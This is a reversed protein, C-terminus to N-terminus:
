PDELPSVPAAGGVGVDGLEDGDLEDGDLELVAGAVHSGDTVPPVPDGVLPLPLPPFTTLAPEVLEVGAAVDGFGITM